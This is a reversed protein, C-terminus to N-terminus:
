SYVINSHQLPAVDNKDAEVLSAKEQGLLLM